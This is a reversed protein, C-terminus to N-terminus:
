GPTPLNIKNGDSDVFAIFETDTTCFQEFDAVSNYLKQTLFLVGNANYLNGNAKYLVQYGKPKLRYHFSDVWSHEDAPIPEWTNGRKVEIINGDAWAKILYAHKQPKSKPALTVISDNIWGLFMYNSPSIEEVLDDMTAYTHQTIFSTRHMRNFILAVQPSKPDPAKIRYKTSPTWAPGNVPEAWGTSLTRLYEISNGDAWAKILDAHKHETM